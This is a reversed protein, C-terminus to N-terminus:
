KYIVNCSDTEKIYGFWKVKGWNDSMFKVAFEPDLAQEMTVQPHSPQHIQAIGFSPERVGDTIIYSQINNFHSECELTREMQYAKTGTAHQSILSRVYDIPIKDGLKYTIKVPEFVVEVERSLLRSLVSAEVTQYVFLSLVLCLIIVLIYVWDINKFM